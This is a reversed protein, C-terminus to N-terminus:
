NVAEKKGYQRLWQATNSRKFFVAWDLATQGHPDKENLDIGNHAFWQLAELGGKGAALMAPTEGRSATAKAHLDLGRSKLLELCPICNGQAAMHMPTWDWMNRVDLRAGAQLLRVMVDERGTHLAVLLATDGRNNNSTEDRQNVDAGYQLLLDINHMSGRRAALMLLTVGNNAVTNPDAGKKLLAEMAKMDAADQATLVDTHLRGAPTLRKLRLQWDIVMRAPHIPDTFRYTTNLSVVALVLAALLLWIGYGAVWQWQRADGAQDAFRQAYQHKAQRIRDAVADAVSANAIGPTIKVRRNDALVAYLYFVDKWSSGMQSQRYALKKDYGVIDAHAFIQQRTILWSRTQQRVGRQHIVIHWRVTFFHICAGMGLVAMALLGITWLVDVSDDGVFAQRARWAAYGTALAVCVGIWRGSPSPFSAIWQGQQEVAQMVNPSVAVPEMADDSGAPSWASQARSSGRAITTSSYTGRVANGDSATSLPHEMRSPQVALDFSQMDATLLNTLQICWAVREGDIIKDSAESGAPIDFSVKVAGSGDNGLQPSVAHVQSWVTRPTPSSDNERIYNECLKIEFRPLPQMRSAPVKVIGTFSEGIYIERPLTSLLTGKVRRASLSVKFAAWLLVLGVLLFICIFWKVGAGSGTSWAVAAFPWVLVNWAFAFAWIARRQAKSSDPLYAPGPEMNEAKARGFPMAGAPSVVIRYMVWLAGMGVAPFLLAFPILFWLLPWRIQKDILAATPENPDVWVTISTGYDKAQKLRQYWQSHWSGINDAGRQHLGVRNSEFEKQNVSYRYKAEVSQTGKSGSKLQVDILYANVPVFHRVQWAAHLMSVLPKVGAFYGGFGFALAFAAAFLLGGIKSKM